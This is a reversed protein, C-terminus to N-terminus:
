HSWSNIWFYDWSASILPFPSPLSFFGFYTTSDLSSSPRQAPLVVAALIMGRLSPPQSMRGGAGTGQQSLAAWKQAAHRSIERVTLFCRPTSEPFVHPGGHLSTPLAMVATASPLSALPILTKYFPLM